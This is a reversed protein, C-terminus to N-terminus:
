GSCFNNDNIKDAILLMLFMYGVCVVSTAVVITFTASHLIFSFVLTGCNIKYITHFEYAVIGNQVVNSKYGNPTRM